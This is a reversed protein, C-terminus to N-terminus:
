IPSYTKPLLSNTYFMPNSIWDLPCNGNELFIEFWRYITWCSPGIRIPKTILPIVPMIMVRHRVNRSLTSTIMLVEWKNNSLAPWFSLLHVNWHRLSRVTKILWFLAYSSGSHRQQGPDGRCCRIQIEFLEGVRKLLPTIKDLITYNQGEYRTTLSTM